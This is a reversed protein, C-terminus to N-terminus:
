QDKALETFKKLEKLTAFTKYGMDKLETNVCALVKQSDAKAGVEELCYEYNESVMEQDPEQDEANAFFPVAFVIATFLTKKM